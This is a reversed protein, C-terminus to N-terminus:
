KTIQQRYFRLFNYFFLNFLSKWFNFSSVCEKIKLIHLLIQLFVDPNKFFTTVLLISLKIRVKNLLVKQTKKDKAAYYVIKIRDILQHVRAIPEWYGKGEVMDHQPKAQVEGLFAIIKSTLLTDGANMAQTQLVINMYLSFNSKVFKKAKNLNLSQKKLLFSTLHTYEFLLEELSERGSKLIKNFNQLYENNNSNEHAITGLIQTIKDNKKIIEIVWPIIDPNIYDEDSSFVIFNGKAMKVLHLLSAGFGIREEIVYYKIRPDGIERIVDQSGDPPGDHFVVIEIEQSPCTIIKRLNKLLLNPHKLTPICISLIVNSM